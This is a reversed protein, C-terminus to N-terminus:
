RVREARAEQAAVSLAEGDTAALRLNYDFPLVEAGAKEVLLAIVAASRM